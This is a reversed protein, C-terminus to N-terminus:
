YYHSESVCGGLISRELAVGMFRGVSRYIMPLVKEDMALYMYSMNEGDAEVDLQLGDIEELPKGDIIEQAIRKANEYDEPTYADYMVIEKVLEDETIKPSAASGCETCVPDELLYDRWTSHGCENCEYKYIRFKLQKKKM